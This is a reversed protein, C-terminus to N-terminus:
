RCGHVSSPPLCTISVQNHVHTCKVNTNVSGHVAENDAKRQCVQEGSAWRSCTVHHGSNSNIHIFIQCKDKQKARMGEGNNWKALKEQGKEEVEGRRGERLRHGRPDEQCSTESVHTQWCCAPSCQDSLGCQGFIESQKWILGSDNSVGCCRKNMTVM